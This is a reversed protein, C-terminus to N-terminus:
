LENGRSKKSIEVECTLFVPVEEPDVARGALLNLFDCVRFKWGM